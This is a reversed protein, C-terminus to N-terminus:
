IVIHFRTSDLTPIDTALPALKLAKLAPGQGGSIAGHSHARLVSGAHAVVESGLANRNDIVSDICGIKARGAFRAHRPLNQKEAAEIPSGVEIRNAQQELM